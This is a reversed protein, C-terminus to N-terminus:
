RTKRNIREVLKGTLDLEPAVVLVAEANLLLTINEEDVLERLAEAATPQLERFISNRVRNAEGELQRGASELDSRVRNARRQFDEQEQESWTLQEREAEQQLARMDAQAGEFRAQLEAHDSDAQLAEAQKQAVETSLIAGAFDVVATKADALAPFVLMCGVVALFHKVSRM